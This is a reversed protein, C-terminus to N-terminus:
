IFFIGLSRVTSLRFSILFLYSMGDRTLIVDTGQGKHSASSGETPHHIIWKVGKLILSLHQTIMIINRTRLMNSILRTWTLGLPHHVRSHRKITMPSCLTSMVLLLMLHIYQKCLFSRSLPLTCINHKTLCLNCMFSESLEM